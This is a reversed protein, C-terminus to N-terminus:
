LTFVVKILGAEHTKLRDFWQQGEELPVVASILDNVELSGNLMLTLATEYETACAYSGNVQLENLVIKQFDIDAHSAANGVLTVIGGRKVMLLANNVTQGFGVVEFVIDAGNPLKEHLQKLGAETGTNFVVDAGVKRAV